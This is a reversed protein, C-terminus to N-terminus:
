HSIFDSRTVTFAPPKFTGPPFTVNVEGSRYRLSASRYEFHISFYWANAAARRKPDKSLVRPRHDYRGSTKTRKPLSGPKTKRLAAAGASPRNRLCIVAATRLRLKERM